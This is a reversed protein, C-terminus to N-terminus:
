MRGFHEPHGGSDARVRALPFGEGRHHEARNARHGAAQGIDHGVVAGFGLDQTVSAQVSLALWSADSSSAATCHAMARSARKDGGEFRVNDDFGDGIDPEAPVPLAVRLSVHLPKTIGDRVRQYPQLASCPLSRVHERMGKRHVARMRM